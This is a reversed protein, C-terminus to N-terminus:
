LDAFSRFKMEMLFESVVECGIFKKLKDESEM